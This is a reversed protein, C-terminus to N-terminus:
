VHSTPSTCLNRLHNALRQADDDFVRNLRRLFKLTEILVDAFLAETERTM